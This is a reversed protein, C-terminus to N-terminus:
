NMKNPVRFDYIGRLPMILDTLKTEDGPELAEEIAAM